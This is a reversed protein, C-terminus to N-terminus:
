CRGIRASPEVTNEWFFLHPYKGEKEAAQRTESSANMFSIFHNDFKLTAETPTSDTIVRYKLSNIM